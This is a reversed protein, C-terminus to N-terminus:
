STNADAKFRARRLAVGDRTEGALELRNSLLTENRAPNQSCIMADVTFFRIERHTAVYNGNPRRRRELCDCTASFM